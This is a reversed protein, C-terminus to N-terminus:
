HGAMGNAVLDIARFNVVLAQEVRDCWVDPDGEAQELRVFFNQAQIISKLATMRRLLRRVNKSLLFKLHISDM